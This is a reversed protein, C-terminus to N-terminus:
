LKDPNFKYVGRSVKTTAKIKTGVQVLWSSLDNKNYGSESALTDVSVDAGSNTVFVKLIAKSKETRKLLKSLAKDLMSAESDIPDDHRVIGPPITLTTPEPTPLITTAVAKPSNDPKSCPGTITIYDYISSPDAQIKEAAGILQKALSNACLTVELKNEPHEITDIFSISLSSKSM